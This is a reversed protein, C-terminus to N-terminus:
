RRLCLGDTFRSREMWRSAIWASLVFLAFGFLNIVPWSFVTGLLYLRLGRRMLDAPANKRSCAMGVGMAFMFAHAAALYDGLIVDGFFFAFENEYGAHQIGLRIVPHCFLM